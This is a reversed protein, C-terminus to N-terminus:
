TLFGPMVGNRKKIIFGSASLQTLIKRKIRCFEKYINIKLQSLNLLYKKAIM